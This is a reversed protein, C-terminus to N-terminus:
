EDDEDWVLTGSGRKEEERVAGREVERMSVRKELDDGNAVCQTLTRVPVGSVCKALEAQCPKDTSGCLLAIAIMVENM